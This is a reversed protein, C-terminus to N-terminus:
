GLPGYNWRMWGGPDGEILVVEGVTVWPKTRHTALADIRDFVVAVDRSPAERLGIIFLRHRVQPVGYDAANLVAALVGYHPGGPPCRLRSMLNAFYGRCSEHLLGPVNEFVFAEPRLASIIVDAQGLIDRPDGEGRRAGAKSWPQCPPGGTLLGVTGASSRFDFSRVDAVRVAAPDWPKHHRLIRAAIPWQDALGICEFGGDAAVASALGGAGACIEFFTRRHWPRSQVLAMVVASALPPPVADGAARIADLDSVGPVDFWSPCFGQLRQIERATLRRIRKQPLDLLHAEQPYRAWERRVTKSPREPVQPRHKPDLATRLSWPCDPLGGSGAGSPM